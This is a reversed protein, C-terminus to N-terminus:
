LSSLWEFPSTFVMKNSKASNMGAPIVQLNASCHLGCANKAKLPIMHDVHWEIGTFEGREICLSTAEMVILEDLEGFWIPTASLRRARRNATHANVLHKKEERWRKGNAARRAKNKDGWRKNRRAKGPAVKDPNNSEWREKAARAKGRNRDYWAKKSAKSAAKRSEDDPHIFRGKLPNNKAAWRQKSEKSAQLCQTCTCDSNGVKRPMIEGRKCPLGTFYYRM